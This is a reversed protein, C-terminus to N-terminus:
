ESVCSIKLFSEFLGTFAELYVNETKGDVVSLYFDTFFEGDGFIVPVRSRCLYAGSAM